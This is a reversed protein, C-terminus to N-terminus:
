KIPTNASTSGDCTANLWRGKIQATENLKNGQVTGNFKTQGTFTEASTLEGFASGNGNVEPNACVFEIQYQNGNRNANKTTCGEQSEYLNPLTKQKAMEPTICTKSIATGNQVEPLEFGYESALNKIQTMQDAPIRPVLHLLDSSTTIEWTGAKMDYAKTTAAPAETITAALIFTSTFRLLTCTNMLVGSCFLNIGLYIYNLAM